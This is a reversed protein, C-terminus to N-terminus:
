TLHTYSVAGSRDPRSPPCPPPCADPAPAPSGCPPWAAGFSLRGSVFSPVIGSSPNWSGKM